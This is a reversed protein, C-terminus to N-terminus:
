LINVLSNGLLSYVPIPVSKSFFFFCCSTRHCPLNWEVEVRSLELNWAIEQLQYTCMWLGANAALFCHKWCGNMFVSSKELTACANVGQIYPQLSKKKFQKMSGIELWESFMHTEDRCFSVNQPFIAYQTIPILPFTHFHLKSHHFFTKM